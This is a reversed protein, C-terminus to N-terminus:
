HRRLPWHQAITDKADLKVTVEFQSWFYSGTHFSSVHPLYPSEQLVRRSHKDILRVYGGGDGGQGPMAVPTWETKVAELRFVGDPSCTVFRVVEFWPRDIAYGALFAMVLLAATAAHRAM